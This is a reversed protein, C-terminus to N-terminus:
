IVAAVPKPQSDDPGPLELRQDIFPRKGRANSALENVIVFQFKIGSGLRSQLEDVFLKADARGCGASPVIKILCVGPRDQYFQFESVGYFKSPHVPVITPTVIKQGEVGVLFEPKRRPTISSVRLRFVNEENAPEELTATDGTEYRIFPMGTSVFGTGIIRGTQGPEKIAMGNKDILEAHGYLPEFQYIDQKEFVETAFLVKESLGYFPVVAVDPLAASFIKRQHPYVPESIPFIGRIARKPQWGKRWIHRCFIEIASPYGHLYRTRYHDILDMYMDMRSATMSFPSIRLEALASEWEYPTKDIDALRLGRLVCRPASEKYGVSSWAHNIFAFERPSRDKDLFFLLPQGSSGSTSARDVKGIQTALARDGAERLDYKTLIPLRLMDDFGLKAPEPSTGFVSEIRERYYASGSIAKTILDRLLALRRVRVFEIDHQSRAIDERYRMYSRGFKVSTPMLSVAPSLFNRLGSPSRAYAGRAIDLARM